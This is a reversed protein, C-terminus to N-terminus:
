VKKFITYETSNRSDCPIWFYIVHHTFLNDSTVQWKDSTVQWKNYVRTFEKLWLSDLFIHCSPYILQWKDSTVQWKDSTTCEPSGRSDCPIWFYIVHHTFLNDSTVQWKDSTVHWKDSTVQWMNYVRTFEQLWLSDLFIHCSPYILQWKDCKVQWKDSTVQWKDSTTCEPSGRSDCPIWFYIVHHTFLNDSTVQWKDSTVQWKDSTVQWKDSTVQQVSQHVGPTVLFGFIYVLYLICSTYKPM